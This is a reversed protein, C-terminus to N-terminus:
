QEENTELAGSVAYKGIKMAKRLEDMETGSLKRENESAIYPEHAVIELAPTFVSIKSRPGPAQRPLVGSAVLDANFSALQEPDSFDIANDSPRSAALEQVTPVHTILQPNEPATM